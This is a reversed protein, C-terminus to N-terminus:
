VMAHSLNFKKQYDDTSIDIYYVGAECFNWRKYFAKAGENYKWASLWITQFGCKHAYSICSRMLQLEVGKGIWTKRIYFREIELPKPGTISKLIEGNRMQAFGAATHEVEAILFITNVDALQQELQEARFTLATSSQLTPTSKNTIYANIWTETGLQALLEADDVTARRITISHEDM